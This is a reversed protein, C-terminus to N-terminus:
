VPSALMFRRKASLDSLAAIASDPAIDNGTNACSVM